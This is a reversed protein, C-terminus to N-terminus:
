PAFLGQVAFLSNGPTAALGDAGGDFVRVQFMEMLTRKGESITGPLVSDATTAISCTSGVGLDQTTACPVTVPFDLDSLTAPDVPVSGNLRDTIRLTPVLQLQGAYDALDSKRRVDSISVQIRVDAEDASTSTNGAVTTFKASGSSSAARGNADPTGITLFGSTQTPPKCSPHAFPAGHARNPSTCPQYAPVLSARLPSAGRPRAYGSVVSAGYVDQASDTDTVVLPEATEFFVRTGDASAGDYLVPVEANLSVPGTSILTANGSFREYTDPMGDTDIAVLSEATGFFVRSGDASSGQFSAPIDGNGGTPSTSVLQTTGGSADYVDQNADTDAGVLREFTEFYVHSGNPTAGRFAAFFTGNGGNAGTSILTVQGGARQYIDYAPDTDEPVLSETTDFFVRGGDESAGDFFAGLDANGGAPGISLRTTTGGSIEYVDDTTDTDDFTLTEDTKIWIKSGNASIGALFADYDFDLNGNGGAPGISLQTTTGGSRDYVDQMFDFDTGALPEDTTFVVHTGDKSAGAFTAPLDGDGGSPGISLEDTTGGSRQYVDRQGDIDASVLSESTDFFVMAGDPTIADFVVNFAGNGGAPGTSFLTTAGNSRMYIDVAPDTDAAVLPEATRFFIRSGDQSAAVFTATKAANGGTPGTSLLTTAGGSREYVDTSADTDASVLSESSQFFVRTGDASSSRYQSSVATNGGNPGTSQLETLSHNAATVAPLLGLAVAAISVVLWSRSVFRV